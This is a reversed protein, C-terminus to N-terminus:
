ARVFSGVINAPVGPINANTLVDTANGVKNFGGDLTLKAVSGLTDITPTTYHKM